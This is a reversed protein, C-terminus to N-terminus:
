LMQSDARRGCTSRITARQQRIPTALTVSSYQPFPLLLQACIVTPTGVSGVGRNNYLPNAVSQKLAQGLSFYEPNLQDINPGSELLHLSHSDVAGITLVFKRLFSVSCKSRTSKCM